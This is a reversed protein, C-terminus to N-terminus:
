SIIKQAILRNDVILSANYFVIIKPNEVNFKEAWANWATMDTQAGESIRKQAGAALDFQTTYNWLKTNTENNVMAVCLTVNSADKAGYNSITANFRWYVPGWSFVSPYDVSFNTIQLKLVGAELALQRNYAWLAVLSAVVVLAIALAVAVKDAKM